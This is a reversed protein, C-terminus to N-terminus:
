DESEFFAAANRFSVDKVLEGLTDYDAPYEGDEVWRGLLSCLVRRFYEHRPYSLFSRSDTVMGVFCGLVSLSALSTLQARMGPLSDNFWWACGQQVRGRVGGGQFCGLVAGIQANDTPDLSYLITRPLGGASDIRDLLRGLALGAGADGRIGDYGTDPGLRRFMNSNLNRAAGFHLQMVWGRRKYEAALFLLLATKFCDAERESVPMGLLGKKLAVDPSLSEDCVIRDLGHDSNRCGLAHFHEMRRSLAAKLDEFSTVLLGAAESLTGIYAAFGEKEVNVAKDPRWAPLVRFALGSERAMQRHWALSDVPDDTTYILQVGMREVCRRATLEPLQANCREWIAPATKPSLPEEVGFYRKLELHTWHYLPNGVAQPLVAAWRLFKEYDPADGTIYKEEVGATRMARWKYHDGGLWLGTMNRFRRDEALERPPLHCHFDIIPLGEAYDHYLRRAAPTNLLFDEDMFRAM